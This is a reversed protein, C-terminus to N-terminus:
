ESEVSILVARVVRRFLYSENFPNFGQCTILTLYSYDQLSEFAFGTSYPRALKTNRVEYVYKVGGLHIIVLDGYKLTKLAAFPGNMGNANTVHATLVSNGTWTPFATGNLWGTDNGLWTVDWEGNAQPVGMIKSKISLSPIELWLSGFGAYTLAAPQPPLTSIRNPAFGTAPLSSASVNAPTDTSAAAATVTFDFTYDSLGGNLPALTLDVISTTGCVFLRYNGVPLPASLTVIATPNLYIVSLVSVQVDDTQVGGICSNTEVIGNLGKEILLFNSPNTVDDINADGVPNNVEESFTVMFSNPGTGTYNALLTQSIVTPAGVILSVNASNNSTNAETENATVSATNIIPTLSAAGTDVTATISISQTLGGDLTPFTCTLTPAAYVCPQAAPAFSVFTLGAPLSDSVVVNSAQSDGSHTVLLDFTVTDGENVSNVAVTKTISLDFQRVITTTEEAREDDNDAPTDGGDNGNNGETSTVYAINNATSGDITNAPYNGSIVVNASAGSAITGLACPLVNLVIPSCSGQSPQIQTVVFDSPLVDTFQVNTAAYNPTGTNQITVTYSMSAGAAVPDASDIKSVLLTPTVVNSVTVGNGTLDAISLAPDAGNNWDDAGALNYTTGDNALTGNKNLVQRLADRDTANLTVSFSTSNTIEVNSSTLTYSVNGEGSLTLKCVNIDNNAGSFSLLRLGSVSLVGSNADYTASQIEPVSLNTVTLANVADTINDSANAGTDWDDAAALNYLTGGTSTTGNKNLITGVGARDSASLTLSFTTASSIEVNATDTLTYTFGGEGTVTFKNASIDNNAGASAQFDTGTVTLTGASADYVTSTITPPSTTEYAGVDCSAGQLRSHGRQDMNNVPAAACTTSDGADIAASGPLLAFTQTPGGNDALTPNLKLVLSSVPTASDCTVDTALNDTGATIAGIGACNGQLFITTSLITNKLKITGFSYLNGGDASANNSFTNNISIGRDAFIGGGYLTASNNAITSNAMILTNPDSFNFIGGGTLASNNIITSNTITLAGFNTIGGGYSDASNQFFTSNTITAVGANDIAGGLGDVANNSFISNSITL